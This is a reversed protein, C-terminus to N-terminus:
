VVPTKAQFFPNGSLFHRQILCGEPLTTQMNAPGTLGPGPALPALPSAPFPHAAACTAMGAVAGTPWHKMQSLNEVTTPGERM